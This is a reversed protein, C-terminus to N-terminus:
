CNTCAICNGRDDHPSENNPFIIESKLQEFAKYLLAAYSHIQEAGSKTKLCRCILGRYLTCTKNVKTSGWQKLCGHQGTYSSPFISPSFHPDLNRQWKYPLRPYATLSCALLILFFALVIVQQRSQKALSNRIWLNSSVSRHKYTVVFNHYCKTVQCIQINIRFGTDIICKHFHLKIPFSLVLLPYTAKKQRSQNRGEIWHIQITNQQTSNAQYMYGLMQCQLSLWNQEWLEVQM